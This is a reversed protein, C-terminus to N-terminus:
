LSGGQENDDDLWKRVILALKASLDRIKEPAPAAKYMRIAEIHNNNEFYYDGVRILGDSYGLTLFIRKAKEVDGKNFIENGKRTLVARQQSTLDENKLGTTKLFGDEPFSKLPDNQNM